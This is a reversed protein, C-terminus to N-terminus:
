SIGYLLIRRSVSYDSLQDLLEWSKISGSSENGHECTDVGQARDQARHMWGV